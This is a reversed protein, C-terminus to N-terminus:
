GFGRGANQGYALLAPRRPATMAVRASTSESRTTAGAVAADCTAPAAADVVVDRVVACRSTITSPPVSTAVRRSPPHVRRM